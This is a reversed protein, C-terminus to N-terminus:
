TRRQRVQFNMYSVFLGQEDYDDIYDQRNDQFSISQIRNTYAGTPPYIGEAVYDLTARVDKQALIMEEYSTHFMALQMQTVDLKSYGSAGKTNTPETSTITYVIMPYTTTNYNTVSPYIRTGYVNTVSTNQTLLYYIASGTQGSFDPM